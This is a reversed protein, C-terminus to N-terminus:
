YPLNHSHFFHINIWLQKYVLAESVQNQVGLLEPRYSADEVRHILQSLVLQDGVLDMGLFAQGRSAFLVDHLHPLMVLIPDRLGGGDQGVQHAVELDPAFVVILLLLWLLSILEAHLVNEVVVVGGAFLKLGEELELSHWHCYKHDGVM